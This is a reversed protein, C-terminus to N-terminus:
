SIQDGPVINVEENNSLFHREEEEENYDESIAQQPHGRSQKYAENM